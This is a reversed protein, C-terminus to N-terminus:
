QFYGTVDILYHVSAGANRVTVRGNASLGVVTNNARTRGPRYNITSTGPWVGDSPYLALYGSSSPAVVTVNAAMSKAGAPIGCLGSVTIEEEWGSALPPGGRTDLIRCPSILYLLSAGTPRAIVPVDAHPSSTGGCGTATVVLDIGVQGSAGATYRILRTGQGSTITGNTVTWAYTAGGGQNVVSAYNTTSSAYIGSSADITVNPTSSISVTLEGSVIQSCNTSATAVLYRTGNGGFDAGSIVYSSGMANIPTISGGPTLRYGWQITQAGAGGGIAVTATGGTGSSCSGSQGAISVSASTLPTCAGAGITLSGNQLSLGGNAYSETITGAQNSLAANAPDIIIAITTGAALGPATTVNLQGLLNGVGPANSTFLLANTSEAFSAVYGLSAGGQSQVTKDFLTARALVGARTFSAGTVSSAPSFTVKFGLAQIRQGSPRDVGLRTGSVDRLYVPVSVTGGGPVTVGAINLLDTAAHLSAAGLFLALVTLARKM